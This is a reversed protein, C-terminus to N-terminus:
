CVSDLDNGSGAPEVAYPSTVTLHKDCGLVIKEKEVHSAM